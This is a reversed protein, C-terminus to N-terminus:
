LAAMEKEIARQTASAIKETDKVDQQFVESETWHDTSVEGVLHDNEGYVKIEESEDDYTVRCVGVWWEEIEGLILEGILSSDIKESM